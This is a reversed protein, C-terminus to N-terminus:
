NISQFRWFPVHPPLNGSYYAEDGITNRLEKLAQRRVAIHYFDSRADRVIEWIQHLRNAEQLALQIEDARSPRMLKENDLHQRFAFNFALMDNVKDRDPFRDGDRAAPADRLQAFRERVLTLDSAFTTRYAFVQGLERSDLLEMAVAQRQLAALLACDPQINIYDREIPAVLLLSALLSMSDCM